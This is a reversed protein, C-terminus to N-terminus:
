VEQHGPEFARLHLKPRAHHGLTWGGPAERALAKATGKALSQRLSLDPRGVFLQRRALLCGDQPPSGSHTHQNEHNVGINVAHPRKYPQEPALTRTETKM